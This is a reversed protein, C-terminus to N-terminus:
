EDFVQFGVQDGVKFGKALELVMSGGLLNHALHTWLGDGGRLVRVELLHAEGHCVEGDVELCPFVGHAVNERETLQECHTNNVCM